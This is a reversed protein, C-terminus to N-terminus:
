LQDETEHRYPDQQPEEARAALWSALEPCALGPNTGQGPRADGM